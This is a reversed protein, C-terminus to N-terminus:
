TAVNVKANLLLLRIFKSKSLGLKKAEAVVNAEETKTLKVGLDHTRKETRPKEKSKM